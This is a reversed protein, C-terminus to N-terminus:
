GELVAEYEAKSLWFEPDIVKIEEYTVEYLKYVMKDTKM